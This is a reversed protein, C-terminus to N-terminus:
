NEGPRPEPGPTGKIGQWHNNKDGRPFHAAHDFMM